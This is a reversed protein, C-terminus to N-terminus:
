THKRAYVQRAFARVIATFQAPRRLPAVHDSRPIVVLRANPSSTFETEDQRFLPDWEGNVVLLPKGYLALREGYSIGLAIRRSAEFVRQDFRFPIVTEAVHRPLTLRFFVALARELLQPSFQATLAVGAEYLLARAGILNTSCGTLLLASTCEPQDLAYRMALYGGLSYGVFLAPRAAVREVLERLFAELVPIEFPVDALAGHGPLDPTIVHFEDALALAHKRWIKGGLRIGHLFVIPPFRPSGYATIGRAFDM